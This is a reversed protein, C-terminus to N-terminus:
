YDMVHGAWCHDLLCADIAHVSALGAIGAGVGILFYPDFPLGAVVISLMPVSFVFIMLLFMWAPSETRGCVECKV